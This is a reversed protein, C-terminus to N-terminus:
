TAGKVIFPTEFHHEVLNDGAGARDVILFDSPGSLPALVGHWTNMSYQIGQGPASVFARPHGPKGDDDDAVTVILRDGNMPVFAQSGLPHREMMTLSLPLKIADSRAVSISVAGEAGTVEPRALDHYRGCMGNNIMFSPDGIAEIVVGFPAFAAATLPELSIVTTM